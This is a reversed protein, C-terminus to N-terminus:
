NSSLLWAMTRELYFSCRRAPRRRSASRDKSTTVCRHWDDIRTQPAALLRVFWFFFFVLPVTIRRAFLTRCRLCWILNLRTIFRVSRNVCMFCITHGFLLLSHVHARLWHFSSVCGFDSHARSGTFKYKSSSFIHIWRCPLLASNFKIRNKM